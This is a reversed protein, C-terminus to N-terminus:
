IGQVIEAILSPNKEFATGIVIIDAGASFVAIADEKSRIGGGVILPINTNKKVASIMNLSVHKTAGSGADLYLSKLGLLEGALATAVAIESKDAPLPNTNSMYQVSTTREGEVIMYGCSIVELKSNKLFPAAVIHNGILLDANRGSILSLLLIGDAFNSLQLLNGPFLIVPINTLKKISKIVEDIQINTLSGGVFFYDVGSNTALKVIQELKQINQTEPDILVAIQKKAHQKKEIIESYIM